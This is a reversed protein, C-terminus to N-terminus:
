DKPEIKYKGNEFSVNANIYYAKFGARKLINYAMEARIGTACHILITKDKPIENLRKEVEGLPLNVAHPLSGEQTESVERVDLILYNAPLTPSKLLKKFEEVSFTGPRSKHVYAIKSSPKGVEVKGGAKKWSELGGPIYATNTYGWNKIIDIASLAREDKEDYVFIPANKQKPFQKKAAKLKELPLNVAGPIYGKEALAKPRLDILVFSVGQSIESLIHQPEVAVPLGTKKWTPMGEVFGKVNTYGLSAAM